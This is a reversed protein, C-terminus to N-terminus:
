SPTLVFMGVIRIYGEKEFNKSLASFKKEFFNKADVWRCVRIQLLSFPIVSTMGKTSKNDKQASFM